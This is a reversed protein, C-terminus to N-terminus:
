TYSLGLLVCNALRYIIRVAHLHQLGLAIEAAYFVSREESLGPDGLSHIHFRLDGGNLLTLVLCLSDKTQYTYALNM